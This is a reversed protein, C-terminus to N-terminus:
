QIGWVLKHLIVIVCPMIVFGVLIPVSICLVWASLRIKNHTMNRRKYRRQPVHLNRKLFYSWEGTFTIEFVFCFFPNSFWHQIHASFYTASQPHWWKTRHFTIALDLPKSWCALTTKGGGGRFFLYLQWLIKIEFIKTPDSYVTPRVPLLMVGPHSSLVTWPFM